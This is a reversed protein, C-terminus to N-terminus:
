CSPTSSDAYAGSAAWAACCAAPRDHDHRRRRVPQPDRDPPQPPGHRRAGRPLRVRQAHRGGRRRHLPPRPAPRPHRAPLVLRRRRGQAARRRRGRTAADNLVDGFFADKDHPRVVVDHRGLRARVEDETVSWGHTGLVVQLEVDQQRALQRMAFDLQHPRMTALLVSVKPQAVFRVGAREALDRRWALTSHTDLAARRTTVSHQERALPDDLDSQDAGARQTLADSLQPNTGTALLPVGAMALGAVTRPDATSSTSACARSVASTPSRGSPSRRAPARPRPGARGLGQALRAPQRGARRDARPRPRHRGAAGPRHRQHVDPDRRCAASVVVDPPVDREPDGADGADDFFPARVDLGAAADRGAYGVVLGGHGRDGDAAQRACEILVQHAAVPAAFRLVTLVGRGAERAMLSTIAPWEPRPHVVLPVTADTLWVAVVRVQGVRPLASARQRLSARDATMWLVSKWGRGIDTAGAMTTFTAGAPALEAASEDDGIVLLPEPSTFGDLPHTVFSSGDPSGTGAAVRTALAQRSAAAASAALDPHRPRHHPRRAPRRRPGPRRAGRPSGLPHGRRGRVRAAQPLPPHQHLGGRGQALPRVRRRRAVQGGRLPGAPPRPTRHRGPYERLEWDFAKVFTFDPGMPYVWPELFRLSLDLWGTSEDVVTLPHRPMAVITQTSELQWSLDRLIGAGEPTLVMDGDWKMSYSTRVQSFCWNYFHTLSHVSTAPTALHEGGARAVQHPYSLGTFRDAAGCEEAIRRAVDLTGDDSGNDVLLVHQVAAFIPPLVWPLNRAENKVRFVCTLGPALREGSTWPWTVDYDALGELSPIDPLSMLAGPRTTQQAGQPPRAPCGRAGARPRRAARPRRRPGRGADAAAAELERRTATAGERRAALTTSHAFAEADAYMEDYAVRLQDSHEHAEANDGGEDALGDLTQWTEEALDRLSAPVEVDDWTLTVRRLSPDIFKHVQAIDNAM